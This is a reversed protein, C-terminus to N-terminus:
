SLKVISPLSYKRILPLPFVMHTTVVKSEEALQKMIERAEFYAAGTRDPKRIYRYEEKLTKLPVGFKLMRFFRRYHRAKKFYPGNTVLEHINGQKQLEKMGHNEVYYGLAGIWNCFWSSHAESPDRLNKASFEILDGKGLQFWLLLLKPSVRKFISRYTRISYRPMHITIPHRRLNSFFWRARPKRKPMM